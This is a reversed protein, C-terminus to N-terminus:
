RRRRRLAVAGVAMVGMGAPEPIPSATLPSFTISNLSIDGSGPSLVIRVSTIGQPLSLHIAGTNTYGTDSVLGAYDALVAGGLQIQFAAATGYTKFAASLNFDGGDPINILYTTWSASTTKLAVAGTFANGGNERITFQGGSITTAATQTIPTGVSYANTATSNRLQDLANLKPTNTSFNEDSM